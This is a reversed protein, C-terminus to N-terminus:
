STSKGTRRWVPSPLAPGEGFAPVHVTLIGDGALTRDPATLADTILWRQRAKFDGGGAFMQALVADAEAQEQPSGNVSADLAATFRAEEESREAMRAENSSKANVFFGTLCTMIVLVGIMGWVSEKATHFSKFLVYSGGSILFVLSFIEPAASVCLGWLVSTGAVCACLVAGKRFEGSLDKHVKYVTYGATLAAALPMGWGSASLILAGVLGFVAVFVGGAVSDPRAVGALLFATVPFLACLAANKLRM